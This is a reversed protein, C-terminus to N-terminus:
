RPRGLGRELFTLLEDVGREFEELSAAGILEVAHTLVTTLARTIFAPSLADTLEGRALAAAILAQLPDGRGLDHRALALHYIPRGRERLFSRAFRDVEPEARAFALGQRLQLRLADFLGSPAGPPPQAAFHARKREIMLAVLALYLAEKDAFHHYFQGKSVGAVALIRNISAKAYGRADFEDIAAAILAERHAFPQAFSM